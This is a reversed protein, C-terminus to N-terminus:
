DQTFTSRHLWELERDDPERTELRLALLDAVSTCAALAQMTFYTPWYLRRRQTEWDDLLEPVPAWWTAATEVEDPRPQLGAPAAVAFYRADFRVPVSEPAVWHAIEVIAAADPPAAHVEELSESRVVGDRIIALGCEERLERVVCARHAEEASGFWRLGLDADEKELSGGPFAVYGPLFRSTAARELVLVELGPADRGVIVSSAQRLSGDSTV